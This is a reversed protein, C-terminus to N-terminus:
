QYGRSLRFSLCEIETKQSCNEYLKTYFLKTESQIIKPDILEETSSECRLIKRIRTKAKNSKELFLFYKTSKEDEEYSQAKSKLIIGDTIHNHIVDLEKKPQRMNM